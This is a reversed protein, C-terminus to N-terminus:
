IDKLPVESGISASLLIDFVSVLCINKYINQKERRHKFPVGIFFWNERPFLCLIRIRIRIRIYRLYAM